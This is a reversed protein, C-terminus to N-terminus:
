CVADAIARLLVAALPEADQVNIHHTKRNPQGWCFTSRSPYYYGIFYANYYVGYNDGQSRLKLKSAALGAERIASTFLNRARVIRRKDRHKKRDCDSTNGAVKHRLLVTKTETRNYGKEPNESDHLLVYGREIRLADERTACEEVITHEINQWGYLLIDAYMDPNNAYGAGHNWRQEPNDAIGVYVKGNPFKHLYVSTM